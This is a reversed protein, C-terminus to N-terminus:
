FDGTRSFNRVRSIGGRIGLLAGWVSTKQGMRPGLEGPNDFGEVHSYLITWVTGWVKRLQSGGNRGQGLSIGDSFGSFKGKRLRGEPQLFAKAGEKGLGFTVLKARTREGGWLSRGFEGKAGM